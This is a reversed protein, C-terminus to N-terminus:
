PPSSRASKRATIPATQDCGSPGAAPTRAIFAAMAAEQDRMFRRLAAAHFRGDPYRM